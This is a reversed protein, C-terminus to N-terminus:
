TRPPAAPVPRSPHASHMGQHRAIPGLRSGDPQRLLSRSPRSKRRQDVGRRRVCKVPKVTPRRSSVASRQRGVDSPGCGDADNSSSIRASCVHAPHSGMSPRRRPATSAGFPQRPAVTSLGLAQICGAPTSTFGSWPPRLDWIRLSRSGLEPQGVGADLCGARGCTLRRRCLWLGSGFNSHALIGRLGGPRAAAAAVRGTAVSV